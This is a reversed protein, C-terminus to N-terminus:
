VNILTRFAEVISSFKSSDIDFGGHLSIERFFPYSIYKAILYSVKIHGSKDFVEFDLLFENPSMSCLHAVGRRKTDIEEMCLLFNNLEDIEIWTSNLVGGFGENQTTVSVKISPMREKESEIFEIEIFSKRDESFIKM